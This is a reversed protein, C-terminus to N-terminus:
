VTKLINESRQHPRHNIDVPLSCSMKSSIMESHWSCVEYFLYQVCTRFFM